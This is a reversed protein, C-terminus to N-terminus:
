MVRYIYADDILTGNVAEGTIRRGGLKPGRSNARRLAVILRDDDELATLNSPGFIEHAEPIKRVLARIKRYAAISGRTRVEPSAVVFRWRAAEDFYFWFAACTPFKHRDLLELLRRGAAIMETTFERKVM